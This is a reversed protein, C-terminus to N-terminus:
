LVAAGNYHIDDVATVPHHPIPTIIPHVPVPGAVVTTLQLLVAAWFRMITAPASSTKPSISRFAGPPLFSLPNLFLACSLATVFCVGRHVSVPSAQTRINNPRLEPVMIDALEPVM